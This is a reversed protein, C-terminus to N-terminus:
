NCSPPQADRMLRLAEAVRAVAPEWGEGLGQRVLALSPYWPSDARDLLWRWDPVAKLLVFSPRGLAGALHSISTDCTVVVDLAMMAAATDVFADGSAEAPMDFEELGPLTEHVGPEQRQISITRVGPLETLPRLTDLTLSRTPDARYDQNGRWCLGIKFGPGLRAAWAAALAPEPALYSAAHPISEERTRFLRPLSSLAVQRDFIAGPPLEDVVPIPLPLGGLLRHLSRRCLFTVDAGAMKLLPLYRAFQIVDGHGQEDLVLLRMGAPPEGQWDPFLTQWKAGASTGARWRAEYDDWGREYDGRLLRLAGRNNRIHASSPDRALAADFGEAAEAFRGLMKLAVARSCLADAHDPAGALAADFATIAEAHRGIHLLVNGKNFLAQPFRAGHAAAREHVALAEAMHGAQHLAVGYNNLLIPDNPRRRLADAGAAVADAYRAATQLLNGRDLLLDRDTPLLRLAMDLAALAEDTEGRAALVNALARLAEPYAPRRRLAERFAHMAEDRRGLALLVHGGNLFTSPDDAGSAFAAGFAAHADEYRRLSQLATARNVRADIFAPDATIAADFWGLAADARNMQLHLLGVLNRRLAGAVEHPVLPALAAVARGSEGRGLAAVADNIAADVAPQAIHALASDAAPPRHLVALQM